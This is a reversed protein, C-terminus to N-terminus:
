RGRLKRYLKTSLSTNNHRMYNELEDVKRNIHEEVRVIDEKDRTEHILQDHRLSSIIYGLGLKGSALEERLYNNAIMTIKKEHLLGNDVFVSNQNIGTTNPRHHYFALADRTPLFEIDYAMLFRLAFDWDGAVPLNESYYGIREYVERRYIFTIPTAYNDICQNYLSIARLEPHWRSRSLQRINSGDIAEDIKDTTVVVGMAKQQELHDTTKLLFDHDWSDDDDHIAVYTSAVSKIAKNSAAEMGHSEKNHIVKVRDQVLSKYKKILDDVVKPDGADNIIVHVFDNMTQSHVSLIARELLVPRDKTRTIVAVKPIHHSKIAM